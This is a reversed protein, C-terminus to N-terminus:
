ECRVFLDELAMTQPLMGQQVLYGVLAELTKRNEELGYCWPDGDKFVESIEELDSSLWPLMYRLTSLFRMKQLGIEKSRCLAKFLDSAVGPFENYIERRIVVVHMIPFIEHTKYYEKERHRFDPFLRRVHPVKGLSPPLEAGIVVDIDGDVLLQDLSKGTENQIINLGQPLKTSMGYTEGSTLSGEIWQATTADFGYDQHLMGRIWVAATMTYLQVGIRKGNLDKPGCVNNENIVIFGHRFLRSPFVPIAVFKCDGRATGTIYESASMESADYVPGKAQADFIHRPHDVTVFTFDIKEPKVDGTYLALMRDYLGSAFTMKVKSM